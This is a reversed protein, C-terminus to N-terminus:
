SDINYYVSGSTDLDKKFKEVVNSYDTTSVIIALEETYGMILDQREMPVNGIIEILHKVALEANIIFEIAKRCVQMSTSIISDGLAEFCLLKTSISECSIVMQVLVPADSHSYNKSERLLAQVKFEEFCFQNISPYKRCVESQIGTFLADVFGKGTACINILENNITYNTTIETLGAQEGITVHDDLVVAVYNNGLVSKIRKSIKRQYVLEEPKM